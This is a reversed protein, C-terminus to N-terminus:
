NRAVSFCDKERNRALLIKTNKKKNIEESKLSFAKSFYTTQSQRQTHTQTAM